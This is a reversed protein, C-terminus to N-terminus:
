PRSGGEPSHLRTASDPLDYIEVRASEPPGVEARGDLVARAALRSCVYILRGYRPPLDPPAPGIAPLSAYDTTRALTQAIIAATRETSKRTLEVEIAWIQGAWPAGTGAPWHVEADPPHGERRPFEGAQLWRESRWFGRARRYAATREVALRVDTVAHTHRLSHAAPKVLRTRLACANLGKRTLWVWPEGLTLLGGDAVGAARWGTVIEEARERAWGAPVGWDTLLAALQDLQMGYMAAVYRLLAPQMGDPIGDRSM